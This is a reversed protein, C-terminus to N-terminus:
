MRFVYRLINAVEDILFFVVWPSFEGVRTVRDFAGKSLLKKQIPQRETDPDPAHRPTCFSQVRSVLKALAGQNSPNQGVAFQEVRKTWSFITSPNQGVAFQEVLITRSCITRSMKDEQFCNSENQGVSFQEVSKTRSFVTRSM